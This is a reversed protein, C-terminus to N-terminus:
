QKRMQRGSKMLHLAEHRAFRRVDFDDEDYPKSSLRVTALASEYEVTISAAAGNNLPEFKFFVRYGTLGFRQHYEEFYKKFLAFHKQTVKM